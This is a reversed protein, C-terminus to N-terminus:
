DVVGVVDFLIGAALVFLDRLICEVVGVVDILVVVDRFNCDCVVCEVVGAVDLLVVVDHVVGVVVLIIYDVLSTSV